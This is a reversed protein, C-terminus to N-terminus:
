DRGYSVSRHRVREIWYEGEPSVWYVVRFEGRKVGRKGAFRGRLDDGPLRQRRMNQLLEFLAPQYKAPLRNLDRRASRTLHVIPM